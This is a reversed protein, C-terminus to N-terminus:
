LTKNSKTNGINTPRSKWHEVTHLSITLVKM